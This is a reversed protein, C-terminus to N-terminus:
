GKSVQELLSCGPCSHATVQLITGEGGPFVLGALVFALTSELDSVTLHMVHARM